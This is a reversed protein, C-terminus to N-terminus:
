RVLRIHQYDVLGIDPLRGFWVSIFTIKWVLGIYLYDVLGFRYAPWILLFEILKSVLDVRNLLQFKIEVGIKNIILDTHNSSQAM